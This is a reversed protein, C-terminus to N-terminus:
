VLELVVDTARRRDVVRLAPRRLEAARLDPQLALVQVVGARVLDVVAHALRQEGPTKALLAHDRLRTRALVADGRGGNGRAEAHLADDVHARLVDLPLRLVHEPHLQQARRDYRDLGARLRQLVREVLRHAVPDRVDVRREVDDAGNGARVRVRHHHAVELAHDAAFAQHLHGGGRPAVRVDHDRTDAAAAIRHADEMRVDAVRTHLEDADFRGAFADGAAAM